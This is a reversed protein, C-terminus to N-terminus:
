KTQLILRWEPIRRKWITEVDNQHRKYEKDGDNCRNNWQKTSNMYTSFRKSTFDSANDLTYVGVDSPTTEMEDLTTRDCLTQDLLDQFEEHYEEYNASNHRVVAPKKLTEKKVSVDKSKKKKHSKKFKKLKWNEIAKNQREKLFSYKTYWKNHTIIDDKTIGPLKRSISQLFIQFRDSTEVNLEQYQFDEINKDISFHKHWEKEFIEHNYAIWGGYKNKSQAIFNQLEQVEPSKLPSYILSKVPSPVIESFTKIQEKNTGRFEKDSNPREDIEKMLDREESMLSKLQTQLSGKFNRIKNEISLVNKRVEDIDISNIILQSNTNAQIEEFLDRIEIYSDKLKNCLQTNDAYNIDRVRVEESLVESSKINKTLLNEEIKLRRLKVILNSDNDSVEVSTSKDASKTSITASDM